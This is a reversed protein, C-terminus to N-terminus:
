PKAFEQYDLAYIMRTRDIYRRLAESGMQAAARAGRKGPGAFSSESARYERPSMRDSQALLVTHSDAGNLATEQAVSAPGAHAQHSAVLAFMAAVTM